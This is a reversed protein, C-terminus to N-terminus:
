DKKPRRRVENVAEWNLMGAMQHAAAISTPDGEGISFAVHTTDFGDLSMDFSRWEGDVFALTWAHPMFAHSVGHYRERSYVIGSVVRTPIGAARGLAALVVAGETCDGRRMRMAELASFHGAFDIEGLRRRAKHALREMKETDSVNLSGIKRAFKRLEKHDSQLWFGPQLAATLYAEDKPLGPGCNTCIDLVFGNETETVRQEGTSPPLFAVGKAFSFAYRVHGARASASIRVPSKVLAGEVISSARFKNRKAERTTEAARYSTGFMPRETHLLQGSPDYASRSVDRLVGQQFVRREFIRTGDAIATDIERLTVRQLAPAKIDLEHFELSVEAGPELATLLAAGRDFRINTPLVITVHRRDGRVDCTITATSGEIAVSTQAAHRGIRYHHLIESVKGSADESTIVEERIRRTSTNEERQLLESRIVVQRGGDGLPIVERETHGVVDGSASTIQYRNDIDANAGCSPVLVCLSIVFSLLRVSLSLVKM